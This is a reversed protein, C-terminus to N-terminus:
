QIEISIVKVGIIHDKFYFKITSTLYPIISLYFIHFKRVTYAKIKEERGYEKEINKEMAWKITEEVNKLWDGIFEYLSSLCIKPKLNKSKM